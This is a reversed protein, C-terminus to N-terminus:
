NTGHWAQAMANPAMVHKVQKTLAMGHKLWLMLDEYLCLMHRMSAYAQTMANPAM